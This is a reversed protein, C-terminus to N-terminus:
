VYYERPGEGRPLSFKTRCEGKSRLSWPGQVQLHVRPPRRGGAGGGQESPGGGGLRSAHPAPAGLIPRPTQPAAAGRLEHIRLIGWKPM